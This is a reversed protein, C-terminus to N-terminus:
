RNIRMLLAIFVPAGLLATVVGIPLEAPPVLSRALLDSLLLVSAGLLASAPIVWQNNAGYLLRVIHPIVLGIFGIIGALAVVAGVACTNAALLSFKLKNVNFGLTYAHNDGMALANMARSLYINLFTVMAVFIMVPITLALDSRALSGLTWFILERLQQEDSLFILVGNIAGFLANIAIGALILTATNLKKNITYRSGLWFRLRGHSLMFLLIMALMAGAMAAYPLSSFSQLSKNHGISGALVIYSVAGTAAGSSVGVIAPDALPNKYLAQFCAGSCALAMGVTIGLLIRPLRLELFVARQMAINPNLAGAAEPNNGLISSAIVRPDVTIAGMM